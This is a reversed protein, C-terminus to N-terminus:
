LSQLFPYRQYLFGCRRGCLHLRIRYRQGPRKELERLLAEKSAYGSNRADAGTISAANVPEVADIKLVGIGTRLALGIRGDRIGEILQELSTAPKTQLLRLIQVSM